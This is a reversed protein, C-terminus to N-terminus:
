EEVRHAQPVHNEAFRAFGVLHDVLVAPNSLMPCHGSDTLTVQAAHRAASGLLKDQEGAVRLIPCPPRDLQLSVDLRSLLDLGTALTQPSAGPRQGILDFLRKLASRPAPEGQLQWRLFHHWTARPDRAFARRFAALEQASVGDAQCFTAGAGILVLGRPPPLWDLLAAALLGGLSWGIWTADSPFRAHMHEALEPLTAPFEQEPHRGYGPWDPADVAIDDPWCDSLSQWIRADIGWGSLLVLSTM